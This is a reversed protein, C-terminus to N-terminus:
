RTRGKLISAIKSRDGFLAGAFAVSASIVAGIIEAAAAPTRLSSWDTHSRLIEQMFYLFTVWGVLMASVAMGSQYRDRTTIRDGVRRKQKIPTKAM